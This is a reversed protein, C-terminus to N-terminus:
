NGKDNKIKDLIDEVISKILKNHSTSPKMFICVPIFLLSSVQTEQGASEYQKGNINMKATINFYLHSSLPITFLSLGYIIETISKNTKIGAIRNYGTETIEINLINGNDVNECYANNDILIQKILRTNYGEVAIIASESHKNKGNYKYNLNIASIFCNNGKSYLTNPKNNIFGISCNLLLLSLFLGLYYIRRMAKGKKDCLM